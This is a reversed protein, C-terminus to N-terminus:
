SAQHKTPLSHRYFGMIKLCKGIFNLGNGNAPKQHEQAKKKSDFLCDNVLLFLDWFNVASSEDALIVRCQDLSILGPGISERLLVAQGATTLVALKGEKSLWDISLATRYALEMNATSLEDPMGQNSSRVSSIFCGRVWNNVCQISRDTLPRLLYDQGGSHFYVPAAQINM